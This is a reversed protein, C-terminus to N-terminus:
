DQQYFVLQEPAFYLPTGLRTTTELDSPSDDVVKTLGFDTFQVNYNETVLINSPKIDRHAFGCLHIFHLGEALQRMIYLAVDYDM